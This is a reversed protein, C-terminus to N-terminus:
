RNTLFKRSGLSRQAGPVKRSSSARGWPGLNQTGAPPEAGLGEGTNMQAQRERGEPFVGGEVGFQLHRVTGRVPEAGETCAERVARHGTRFSDGASGSGTPCGQQCSGRAPGPGVQRCGM